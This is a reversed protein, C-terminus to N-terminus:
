IQCLVLPLVCISCCIINYTTSTPKPAFRNMWTLSFPNWEQGVVKSTPMAEQSPMKAMKSLRLNALIRVGPLLQADWCYGMELLAWWTVM